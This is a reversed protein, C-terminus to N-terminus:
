KGLKLQGQISHTPSHKNAGRYIRIYEGLLSAPCTMLAKEEKRTRGGESAEAHHLNQLSPPKRFSNLKIQLQPKGWFLKSVMIIRCWFTNSCVCLDTTHHHRHLAQWCHQIYFLTASSGGLLAWLIKDENQTGWLRDIVIQLCFIICFLHRIFYGRKQHPLWAFRVIIDNVDYFYLVSNDRSAVTSSQLYKLIGLNLFPRYLILVVWV